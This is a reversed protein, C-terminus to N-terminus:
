IKFLVVFYLLGAPWSDMYEIKKKKEPRHLCRELEGAWDVGPHILIGIICSLHYGRSNQKYSLITIIIIICIVVGITNSTWTFSM